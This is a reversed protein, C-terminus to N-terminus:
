LSAIKREGCLNMPPGPVGPTSTARRSSNRLRTGSTDRAAAGDGVDVRGLVDVEVVGLMALFAARGRDDLRDPRAEHELELLRDPASAIRARSSDNMSRAISRQLALGFM